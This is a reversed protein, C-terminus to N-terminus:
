DLCHGEFWIEDLTTWGNKCSYCVKVCIIITANYGTSVRTKISNFTEHKLIEDTTQNWEYHMTVGVRKDLGAEM